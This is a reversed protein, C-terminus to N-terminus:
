IRTQSWDESGLRVGTPASSLLALVFRSNGAGLQGRHETVEV